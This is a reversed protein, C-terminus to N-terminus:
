QEEGESDLDEDSDLDADAGADTFGGAQIMEDWNPWPEDPLPERPEYEVHDAEEPVDDHHAKGKDDLAGSIVV